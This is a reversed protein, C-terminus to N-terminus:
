SDRSSPLARPERRGLLLALPKIGLTKASWLFVASALLEDLNGVAPLLDPIEPPLGPINALFVASTVLGVVAMLKRGLGPPKDHITSM